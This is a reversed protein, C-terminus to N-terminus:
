DEWFDPIINSSFSTCDGCEPSVIFYIAGGANSWYKYNSNTLLQFLTLREPFTGPALGTISYDLRLHNVNRPDASYECDYFYM